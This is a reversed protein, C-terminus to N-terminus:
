NNVVVTRYQIANYEKALRINSSNGRTRMTGNKAVVKEQTTCSQCILALMMAFATLGGLSGKMVTVVTNKM